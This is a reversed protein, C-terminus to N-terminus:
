FTQLFYMLLAGLLSQSFLYIIECLLM